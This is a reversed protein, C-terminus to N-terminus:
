ADVDSFQIGYERSKMKAQVLNIARGSRSRLELIANKDKETVKCGLIIAVLANSPIDLHGPEKSTLRWEEEYAWLDSKTLMSQQGWDEKQQFLKVIPYSSQYHVKAARSFFDNNTTSYALCAGTHSASYHSWMLLHDNRASVCYVGARGLLAKYYDTIDDNGELKKLTERAQIRRATRDLGLRKVLAAEIWRRAAKQETETRGITIRPRCDFPDNFDYPSCFFIRNGVVIEEIRDMTRLTTYKYLVEPPKM